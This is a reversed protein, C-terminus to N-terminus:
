RGGRFYYRYQAEMGEQSYLGSYGTLFGQDQCEGECRIGPEAISSSYVWDSLISFTVDDEKLKNECIETRASFCCCSEVTEVPPGYEGERM